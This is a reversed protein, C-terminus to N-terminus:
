VPSTESSFYRCCSVPILSNVTVLNESINVTYAMHQFCFQVVEEIVHRPYKWLALTKKGWSFIAVGFFCESFMHMANVKEVSVEVVLICVIIALLSRCNPM